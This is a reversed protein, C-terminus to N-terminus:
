DVVVCVTSEQKERYQFRTGDADIMQRRDSINHVAKQYEELCSEVIEPPCDFCRIVLSLADSAFEKPRPQMSAMNGVHLRLQQSTRCVDMVANFFQEGARSTFAGVVEDAHTGLRRLVSSLMPDVVENEVKTFWSLGLKEPIM